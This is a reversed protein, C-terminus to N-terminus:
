YNIKVVPSFIMDEVHNIQLGIRAFIYHQTPIMVPIRASLSINNMDAISGGNVAATSISTRGDDFFTKSLYLVMSQIDQATSDNIIKEVKCTATVTSDSVSFQPNLIIYYPLVQINLNTNGQIHVPITDSNTKSNILSEFPGQGAPFVLKYDGNFLLASFSGNQDVSVNIPTLKGFGSQWLQFNVNNYSVNISDDKYMIAGSFKSSPPSYNDYECSALSLMGALFCAIYQLKIKM